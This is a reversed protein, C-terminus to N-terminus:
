DIKMVCHEKIFSALKEHPKIFEDFARQAYAALWYQSGEPPELNEDIYHMYDTAMMYHGNMYFTFSTHILMIQRLVIAANGLQKERSEICLEPCNLIINRYSNSHVHNDLLERNQKLYTGWGFWPYLDKTSNSNKLSQLIKNTSPIRHGTKLWEDVDKVVLSKEWDFQDERVVNLYIEVLVTDFLKRILVFVDSLHGKKLLTKISVLTSRISMYIRSAYNTITLTGNPMFLLSSDSLGEYYEMMHDILAFVQHKRFSEEFVQGFDKSVVVM